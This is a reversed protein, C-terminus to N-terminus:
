VRNLDFWALTIATSGACAASTSIDIIPGADEYSYRLGTLEREILRREASNEPLANKRRVLRLITQQLDMLRWPRASAAVARDKRRAGVATKPM